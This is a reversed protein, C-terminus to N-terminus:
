LGDFANKEKAIKALREGFPNGKSPCSITMLSFMGFCRSLPYEERVPTIDYHKTSHALWIAKLYM